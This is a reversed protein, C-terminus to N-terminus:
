RNNRNKKNNFRKQRDINYEPAYMKLIRKAIKKLLEDKSQKYIIMLTDVPIYVESPMNNYKLSTVFHIDQFGMRRLLKYNQGIDGNSNFFLTYILWHFNFDHKFLSRSYFPSYLRCAKFHGFIDIFDQLEELFKGGFISSYRELIFMYPDNKENIIDRDIEDNFINMGKNYIINSEKVFYIIKKNSAHLYDARLRFILEKSLYAFYNESSLIQYISAASVYLDETHAITDNNFCYDIQTQVLGSVCSKSVNSLYRINSLLFNVTKIDKDDALNMIIEDLTDSEVVQSNIECLLLEIVVLWSSEKIARKLMSLLESYKKIFFHSYIYHATFYELFTKHTFSNEYYISRIRAFDIFNNAAEVAEDHEEYDNTNFLYKAIVKIVENHSILKSKEDQTFHWFGLYSFVGIINKVKININLEKEKRDRKDVITRVCGQYIDFKSTPVEGENRYLILILSLILPNSILENDIKYLQDKIKVKEDNIQWEEFGAILCWKDIYENIKVKDFGQIEFVNFDDKEFTVEANSEFRSTVVVPCKTYRKILITIEDRISVRDSVDFIEDMGDFFISVGGNILLHDVINIDIDNISSVEKIVHLIYEKVTYLYKKRYLNYKHLEIRIPLSDKFDKSMKIKNNKNIIDIILFKILSSKGAGANGLILVRNKSFISSEYYSIGSEFEPIQLNTTKFPLNLMARDYSMDLLGYSKITTQSHLRKYKRLSLTSSLWSNRQIQQDKRAKIDPYVFLTVLDIDRPKNMSSPIDLGLFNLKKYVQNVYLNYSSFIDIVKESYKISRDLENFENELLSSLKELLDLSSNQQKVKQYLDSFDIINKSVSFSLKDNVIESIKDKTIKSYSKKQDGILFIFLEGHWIYLQSSVYSQLTEIIKESSNDSSVQFAIRNKNDFLDIGKFGPNLEYNINKLELGLILNLIRSVINELHINISTEGNQNAIKVKAQIRAFYDRVKTSLQEERM